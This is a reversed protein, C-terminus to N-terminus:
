ENLVNLKSKVYEQLQEEEREEERLLEMVKEREEKQTKLDLTKIPAESDQTFLSFYVFHSIIIVIISILISQFVGLM